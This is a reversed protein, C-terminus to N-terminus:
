FTSIEKKRRNHAIRFIFLAFLTILFNFIMFLNLVEFTVLAIFQTASFCATVVYVPWITSTPYKGVFYRYIFYLLTLYVTPELTRAKWDSLQQATFGPAPFDLSEFFFVRSVAMVLFFIAAITLVWSVLKSM